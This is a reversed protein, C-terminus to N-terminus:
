VKFNIIKKVTELSCFFIADFIPNLLTVEESIQNFPTITFSEMDKPKIEFVIPSLTRVLNLVKKYEKLDKAPLFNGQKSEYVRNKLLLTLKDNFIVKSWSISVKSFLFEKEASVLPHPKRSRISELMQFFIAKGGVADVTQMLLEHFKLKEEQSLKNFDCM